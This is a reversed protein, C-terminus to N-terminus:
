MAKILYQVLLQKIYVKYPDLLHIFTNFRKTRTELFDCLVGQDDLSCIHLPVWGISQGVSGGSDDPDSVDVVVRGLEGRVSHTWVFM